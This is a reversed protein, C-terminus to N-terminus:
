ILVPPGRDSVFSVPDFGYALRNDTSLLLWTRNAQLDYASSSTLLAQDVSQRKFQKQLLPSIKQRVAVFNPLSRNSRIAPNASAISGNSATAFARLETGSFLFVSMLAFALMAGASHFNTSTRSRSMSCSTKFRAVNKQIAALSKKVLTNNVLHMIGAITCNSPLKSDLM